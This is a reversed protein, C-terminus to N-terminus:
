AFPNDDAAEGGAAPAPESYGGNSSYTGGRPTRKVTATAWRLCAAAEDVYVADRKQEQGEANTWSDTRIHGSVILRDGKQVSASLNEALDGFVKCNFFVVNERTEGDRGRGRENVAISFSAWPKGASSYRLNVNDTLRGAFTVAAGNM